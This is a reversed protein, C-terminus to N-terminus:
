GGEPAATFGEAAAVEEETMTTAQAYRYALLTLEFLEAPPAGAEVLADLINLGYEEIRERPRWPRPRPRCPWKINSPWCLYLAAAMRGLALAKNDTEADDIGLAFSASFPPPQLTATIEVPAGNRERCRLTVTPPNRKLDARLRQEVARPETEEVGEAETAPADTTDM